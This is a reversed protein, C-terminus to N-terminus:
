APTGAPSIPLVEDLGTFEILNMVLPPIDVYRIGIGTHRARRLWVLMLSVLVSNGDTVGTLSLELVPAPETGQAAGGLEGIADDLLGRAQRANTLTPAGELRHHLRDISVLQVDTVRELPPM